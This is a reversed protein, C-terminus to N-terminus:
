WPQAGSRNLRPAQGGTGGKGHCVACRERFVRAGIQEDNSTSFPNTVAGELSFGQKLFGELGFGGRVHTMFWLEGWSLGPLNGEVKRAFLHARWSSGKGHGVM